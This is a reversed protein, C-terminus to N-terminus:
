CECNVNMILMLMFMLMLMLMGTALFMLEVTGDGSTYFIAASAITFRPGRVHYDLVFTRMGHTHEM